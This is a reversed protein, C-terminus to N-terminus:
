WDRVGKRGILIMERKPVMVLIDKQGKRIGQM